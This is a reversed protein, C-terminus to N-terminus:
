GTRCTVGETCGQARVLNSPAGVPGGSPVRAHVITGMVVEM